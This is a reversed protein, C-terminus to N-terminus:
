EISERVDIRIDANPHDHLIIHRVNLFERITDIKKQVTDYQAIDSVKGDIVLLIEGKIM